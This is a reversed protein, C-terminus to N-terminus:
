SKLLQEKLAKGWLKTEKINGSLFAFDEVSSDTHIELQQEGKQNKGISVQVINKLPFREIGKYNCFVGLKVLIVNQNTLLLQDTYKSNAGHRVCSKGELIIEEGPLLEYKQKAMVKEGEKIVIYKEKQVIKDYKTIFNM